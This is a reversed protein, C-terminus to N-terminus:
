TLPLIKEFYLIKNLNLVNTVLKLTEYIQVQKSHNIRLEAICTLGVETLILLRHFGQLVL